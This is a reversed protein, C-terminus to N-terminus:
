VARGLAIALRPPAQSIAGAMGVIFSDPCLHLHRAYRRWLRTQDASDNRDNQGLAQEIDSLDRRPAAVPQTKRLMAFAEPLPMDRFAALATQTAIAEPRECERLPAFGHRHQLWTAIAVSNLRGRLTSIGSSALANRAGQYSMNALMALNAPVTADLDLRSVDHNALRWRLVASLLTQRLAPLHGTPTGDDTRPAVAQMLCLVRECDLAQDAHIPIDSGTRFASDYAAEVLRTLNFESLNVASKRNHRTIHAVAATPGAIMEYLDAYRGLFVALERDVADRTVPPPPLTQSWLEDLRHWPENSIRLASPLVWKNRGGQADAMRLGMGGLVLEAAKGYTDIRVMRDTDLQGGGALTPALEFHFDRDRWPRKIGGTALCASTIRPPIMM